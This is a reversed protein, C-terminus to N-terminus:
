KRKANINNITQNILFYSQNSVYKKILKYHYMLMLTYKKNEEIKKLFLIKNIERNLNNRKNSKRKFITLVRRGLYLKVCVWGMNNCKKKIILFFYIIINLSKFM